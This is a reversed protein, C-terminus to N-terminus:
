SAGPASFFACDSDVTVIYLDHVVKGGALPIEFTRQDLHIPLTQDPENNVISVKNMATPRRQCRLFRYTCGAQVYFSAKNIPTPFVLDLQEIGHDLISASETYPAWDQESHRRSAM